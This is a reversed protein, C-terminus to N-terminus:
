RTSFPTRTPAPHLTALSTPDSYSSYMKGARLTKRMAKPVISLERAERLVIALKQRVASVFAPATLHTYILLANRCHRLAIGPRGVGRTIRRVHAQILVASKHKQAELALEAKRIQFSNLFAQAAKAWAITRIWDKECAAKRNKLRQLSREQELELLRTEQRHLEMYKRQRLEQALSQKRALASKRREVTQKKRLKAAARRVPSEPPLIVLNQKIHNVSRNPSNRGQISNELMEWLIEEQSRNHHDKSPQTTDSRTLEPKGFHIKVTFVSSTLAKVAIYVVECKFKPSTDMVKVVDRYVIADALTESPEAVSRSVFAVLRGRNRRFVVRLPAPQNLVAVRMYQVEDQDLRCSEVKDEVLSLRKNSRFGSQAKQLRDILRQFDSDTPTRVPPSPDERRTSAHKASRFREFHQKLRQNERVTYRSMVREQRHFARYPSTSLDQSSVVAGTPLLTWSSEGVQLSLRGNEEVVRQSQSDRLQPFSPPRLGIM